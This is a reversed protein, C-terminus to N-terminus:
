LISSFCSVGLKRDIKQLMDKIGHKQNEDKLDYDSVYTAVENRRNQSTKKSGYHQKLYSSFESLFDEVSLQQPVMKKRLRISYYSKLSYFTQFPALIGSIGGNYAYQSLTKILENRAEGFYVVKMEDLMYEFTKRGALYNKTAIIYNAAPLVPQSLLDCGKSIDKPYYDALSSLNTCKPDYKLAATFNRVVHRHIEKVEKPFVGDEFAENYQELRQMYDIAGSTVQGSGIAGTGSVMNMHLGSEHQWTSFLERADIGSCASVTRLLIATSEVYNKSVCPKPVTKFKGGSSIRDTASKCHVFRQIPYDKQANEICSLDNESPVIPKPSSIINLEKAIYPIRSKRDENCMICDNSSIVEGRFGIMEGKLTRLTYNLGAELYNNKSSCDEYANASSLIVGFSFFFYFFGIFSDM